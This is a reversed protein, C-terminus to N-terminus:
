WECEFQKMATKAHELAATCGERMLRRGEPTKAAEIWAAKTDAFANMMQRQADEPVHQKLCQMFKSTYQDCIPVGVLADEVQPTAPLAICMNSKCVLRGDCTWNDYCNGGEAGDKPVPAEVDNTTTPEEADNTTTPQQTAVVATTQPPRTESCGIVFILLLWRM